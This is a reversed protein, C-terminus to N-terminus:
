ATAQVGENTPVTFTSQIQSLQDRLSANEAKLTANSEQLEKIITSNDLVAEKGANVTGGISQRLDDIDKQSLEPFKKLVAANFEDIKSILKGEITKSIRKNEDIADWIKKSENFYNQNKLIMSEIGTKELKAELVKVLIKVLSRIM